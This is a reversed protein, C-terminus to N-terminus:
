TTGIALSPNARGPRVPVRNCPLIIGITWRFATSNEPRDAMAWDVAPLNAIRAACDASEKERKQKSRLPWPQASRCPIAARKQLPSLTCGWKGGGTLKRGEPDRRQKEGVGPDRRKKKVELLSLSSSTCVPSLADRLCVRDGRLMSEAQGEQLCGLDSDRREM